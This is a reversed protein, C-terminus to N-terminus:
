RAPRSRGTGQRIRDLVHDVGNGDAEPDSDIGSNGIVKACPVFFHCCQRLERIKKQRHDMSDQHSHDADSNHGYEKLHIGLIFVTIRIPSSYEVMTKMNQSYNGDAKRRFSKWPSYSKRFHDIIAKSTPHVLLMMRVRERIQPFRNKGFSPIRPAARAVPM